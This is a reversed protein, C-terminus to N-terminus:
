RRRVSAPITCCPRCLCHLKSTHERGPITLLSCIMKNQSRQLPRQYRPPELSLASRGSWAFFAGKWLEWMSSIFTSCDGALNRTQSLVNSLLMLCSGACSACDVKGDLVQRLHPAAMSILRLLSQNPPPTMVFKCAEALKTDSTGQCQFSVGFAAAGVVALSMRQLPESIEVLGATKSLATDIEELMTDISSHMM